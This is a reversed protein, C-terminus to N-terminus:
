FPLDGDYFSKEGLADRIAREYSVLLERLEASRRVLLHAILLTPPPRTCPEKYLEDLTPHEAYLTHEAVALTADLLALASREPAARMGYADPLTLLLRTSTSM